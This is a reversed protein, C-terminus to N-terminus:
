KNLKGLRATAKVTTKKTIIGIGFIPKMIKTEYQPYMVVDYGPNTNMLEYLAYNATQDSIYNGLVPISALNISAAGSATSGTKQSFLRAFDIGFIKVSTAEASVQESLTFDSKTLNLLTNPEKMSKNVSSCSSLVSTISILLILKTSTNKM